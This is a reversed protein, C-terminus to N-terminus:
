AELRCDDRAKGVEQAGSELLAKVNATRGTRAAWCLATWGDKDTQNVDVGPQSLVLKLVEVDDGQSAWQLVTRGMRDVAEVGCGHDLLYRFRYIERTAALHIPLRGFIDSLHPNANYRNVLMDFVTPHDRLCAANLVTGLNWGGVDNVDANLEVGYTSDNGRLKTPDAGRSLLYDIISEDKWVISMADGAEVGTALLQRVVQQRGGDIANRMLVDLDQGDLRLIDVIAAVTFGFDLAISKTIYMNPLFRPPKEQKIEDEFAELIKFHGLECSTLLAATVNVGHRRLLKVVEGGDPSAIALDIVANDGPSVSLEAGHALLLGCIAAHGNNAACLLPKMNRHPLRINPSCGRDLLAKVVGEQGLEAARVMLSSPWAYNDPAAQILHILMEVEYTISTTSFAQELSLRANDKEGLIYDVIEISNMSAAQAIAASFDNSLEALEGLEKVGDVFLQTDALEALLPLPSKFQDPNCGRSFHNSLIWKSKAWGAWIMKNTPAFFQKVEKIPRHSQSLLRFHEPWNLTIYWHLTSRDEHISRPLAKVEGDQQEYPIYQTQWSQFDELQLIELCLLVINRHDKIDASFWENRQEFFFDRIAPHVIKVENNDIELIGPLLTLIPSVLQFCFKRDHASNGLFQRDKAWSIVTALEQISLPRLAFLIWSLTTKVLSQESQSIHSLLQSFLSQQTIPKKLSLLNQILFSSNAKTAQLVLADRLSTDTVGIFINHIAESDIHPADKAIASNPFINSSQRACRVNTNEKMEEPFQASGSDGLENSDLSLFRYKDLKVSTMLCLKFQRETQMIIRKFHQIFTDLSSSECQDANHLLCLIDLKRSLSTLISLADFLSWSRRVHWHDFVKTDLDAAKAAVLIQCVLSTAMSLATNRRADHQEFTFQLVLCNKAEPKGDLNAVSRQLTHAASQTNQGFVSFAYAGRRDRLRVYEDNKELWSTTEAEKWPSYNAKQIPHIFTNVAPLWWDKILSAYSVRAAGFLSRIIDELKEDSDCVKIPFLAEHLIGLSYTAQVSPNGETSFIPAVKSIQTIGTELFLENTEVVTATLLEIPQIPFPSKSDVVPAFWKVACDFAEWPTAIQHPCHLFIKSSFSTASFSIDEYKVRDNVAMIMSQKIITGGLGHGIFIIPDRRTGLKIRDRILKLLKESQEKIADGSEYGYIIDDPTYELVVSSSM